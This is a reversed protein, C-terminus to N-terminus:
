NCSNPFINPQGIFGTKALDEDILITMKPDYGTQIQPILALLLLTLAAPLHHHPRPM